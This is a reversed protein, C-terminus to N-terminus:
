AVKPNPRFVTGQEEAMQRLTDTGTDYGEWEIYANLYGIKVKKFDAWKQIKHGLKTEAIAQSFDVVAQEGSNFAVFLKRTKLIPEVMTVKYEFFRDESKIPTHTQKDM